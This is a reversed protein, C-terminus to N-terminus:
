RDLGACGERAWRRITEPNGIKPSGNKVEPANLEAMIDSATMGKLKFGKSADGEQRLELTFDGADYLAQLHAMRGPRSVIYDQRGWVREPNALRASKIGATTRESIMGRELEAMAAIIHFFFRGMASTTDINETLSVLDAGAAEIAEITEIVGKLNRGLRDLKWVVVRDGERLAKMIRQFEPRNMSKGSRKEEIIRREPVGYRVLADRQLRLDQDDTSVRAYGILFRDDM